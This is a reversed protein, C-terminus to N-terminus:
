SGAVALFGALAIPYIPAMWVPALAVMTWSPKGTGWKWGLALGWSVPAFGIAIMILSLILETM